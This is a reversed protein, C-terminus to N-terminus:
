TYHIGNKIKHTRMILQENKYINIKFGEFIANPIESQSVLRGSVEQFLNSFSLILVHYLNHLSLVLERLKLILVPCSETFSPVFKDNM